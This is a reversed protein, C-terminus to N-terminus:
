ERVIRFGYNSYRALMSDSGRFNIRAFSLERHWAGGRIAKHKESPVDPTMGNDFQTSCWEWVNGAMDLAGVPSAGMPYMGVATTRMIGTDKTRAFDTNAVEGWPFINSSDGGTAAQVWEAETPLRVLYGLHHSLWRCFAVADYWSLTEAPHNNTPRMQKGPESEHILDNWWGVQDYGDEADLFAKFQKYTIVFKSIHFQEVQFTEKIKNRIDELEVTGAPVKCWVVDPIGNKDLGIGKRHDGIKALRDGLEAREFHDTGPDNIKEMIRSFETRIFESEFVELNPSINNQMSYVLKLREQPWLLYEPYGKNKWELAANRVQRLLILDEQTESIWKKLREWSYFLAEHAVEVYTQDMVLLRAEVFINTFIIDKFEIHDLPVRRRTAAGREDIVVLRRFMHKFWAQKIMEDSSLSQYVAEARKGIAGAVGGLANYMTISLYQDERSHYLEDLTYAMLPLAGPNDGTDVLIREPLDQEFILGAREAPRTIMELLAGLGPMALPFSGDRLLESLLKHEVARHYFDARMTAIVRLRDSKVIAVLVNLFPSIYEANSLTFLEEFQDVFLVLQVHARLDGLAHEVISILREPKENVRKTREEIKEDREFPDDIKLVPITDTLAAILAEFPNSAGGPTFRAYLWDASGEITNAKLRPILGASVLSSKGSGSAGVVAVFRSNAIQDVLADIERGRGFFIPADKETFARLGPFPSGEWKQATITTINESESNPPPPSKTNDTEYRELLETVIEEFFIEFDRRFEDPTDYKNVGRLISGDERYFLDSQFFEEVRQYQELKQSLKSDNMDVPLAGRRRFFLVEPRDSKLADLLEWHTGSFYQQGDTDKFPTGMRTWFIVVVIDCESPTPLGRNIAEQPTMTGRMATGAGPKDWAVVRFAVRERFAPRNPFYDIVDLAIKREASVDGPSSIFVRIYPIQDPM